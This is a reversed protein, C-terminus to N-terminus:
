VEKGIASAREFLPHCRNIEAGFLVLVTEPFEERPYAVRWREIAKSIEDLAGRMRQVQLMAGGSVGGQSAIDSNYHILWDVISRASDLEHIAEAPMMADACLVRLSHARNRVDRAFDAAYHVALKREDGALSVSPKKTTAVPATASPQELTANMM